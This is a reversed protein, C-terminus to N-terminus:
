EGKDVEVAKFEIGSKRKLRSVPVVSNHVYAMVLANAITYFYILQDPTVTYGFHAIIAVATTLIFGLVAPYETLVIKVANYARAAVNM